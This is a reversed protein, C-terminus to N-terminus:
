VLQLLLTKVMAAFAGAVPSVPVQVTVPPAAVMAVGVLRVDVTVTVVLGAVNVQVIALPLQVLVEVTTSVLLTDVILLAPGACVFHLVAVNVMAAFAAADPSVAIQDTTLPAAVIAESM